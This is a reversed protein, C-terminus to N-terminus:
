SVANTPKFSGPISKLLAAQSPKEQKLHEPTPWGQAECLDTPTIGGMGSPPQPSSLFPSHGNKLIFYHPLISGLPSGDSWILGFTNLRKSLLSLFFGVVVWTLNAEPFLLLQQSM